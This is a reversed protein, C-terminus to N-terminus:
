FFSVILLDDVYRKGMVLRSDSGLSSLYTYEAFMCMVCALPPSTRGGMPIGRTQRQISGSVLFFTNELQFQTLLCLRSLRLSRWGAEGHSKGFTAAKSRLNLRIWRIGNDHFLGVIWDVARSIHDDPLQTFMEKIDYTRVVFDLGDQGCKNVKNVADKLHSISRLNFHPVKIRKILFNLSASLLGSAARFPSDFSPVIHRKKNKDNEKTLIYAHQLGESKDWKELAKFQMEKYRERMESLVAWRDKCIVEYCENELYMRRLGQQYLVLCEVWMESINRDLPSMVLGDLTQRVGCVYESYVCGVEMKVGLKCVGQWDIRLDGKLAGCQRVVDLAINCAYNLAEKATFTGIFSVNKADHLFPHVGEICSLKVAVHGNLKPLNFGECAYGVSDAQAFSKYNDQLDGVSKAKLWVTRTRRAFVDTLAHPVVRDKICTKLACEVKCKDITTCFPIKVVINARPNIGFCKKFVNTLIGRVIQRGRQQNLTKVGNYLDILEEITMKFLDRRKWPNKLIAILEAKRTENKTRTRILSSIVWSGGLEITSKADKLLLKDNGVNPIRRTPALSTGNHLNVIRVSAGDALQDSYEQLDLRALEWAGMDKCFYQISKAKCMEQVKTYHLSTYYGHRIKMYAALGGEDEEEEEANQQNQVVDVDEYTGVEEVEPEAMPQKGKVDVIQQVLVELLKKVDSLESNEMKVSLNQKVAPAGEDDDSIDIRKFRSKSGGRTRSRVINEKPTVSAPTREGGRKWKESSSEQVGKEAKAKEDRLQELEAREANSLKARSDVEDLRETRVDTRNNEELSEAARGSGRRQGSAKKKAEEIIKDSKIGNLIEMYEKTFYARNGPGPFVNASQGKGGHSGGQGNGNSPPPPPPPPATSPPPLAPPQLAFPVSWQGGSPAPNGSWPQVGWQAMASVQYAAIPVLPNGPPISLVMGPNQVSVAQLEVGPQVFQQPAGTPAVGPPPPNVGVMVPYQM